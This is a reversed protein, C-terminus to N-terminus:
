QLPPTPPTGTKSPTTANGKYFNALDTKTQDLLREYVVKMNGLKEPEFSLKQVLDDRQAILSEETAFYKKVKKEYAPANVDLGPVPVQEEENRAELASKNFPNNFSM